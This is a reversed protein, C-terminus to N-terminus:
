DGMGELASEGLGEDGQGGKVATGEDPHQWDLMHKRETSQPQRVIGPFIVYGHQIPEM